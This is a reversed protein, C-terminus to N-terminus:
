IYGDWNGTRWRELFADGNRKVESLFITKAASKCFPCQPGIRDRFRFYSTMYAEYEKTFKSRLPGELVLQFQNVDEPKLNM